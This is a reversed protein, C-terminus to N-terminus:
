PWGLVNDTPYPRQSRNEQTAFPETMLASTYNPLLETPLSRGDMRHVWQPDLKEISNVVRRMPEEVAFIRVSRYIEDAVVDVKAILTQEKWEGM